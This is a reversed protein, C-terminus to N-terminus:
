EREGSPIPIGDISRRNKKERYESLGKEGKVAAWKLLGDRHGEFQM